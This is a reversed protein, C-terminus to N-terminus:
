DDFLYIGLGVKFGITSYDSKKLSLDYYIAPEITVSRNIFFAYGVEVNPMVDNYSKQAHVLKVGAGLYLGNQTIYYRAGAGVSIHDPVVDSGNHQYNVPGLVMIDDWLFNGAKGEVGLNLGNAGNYNLDIGTLSGGVYGKGEQFQARVGLALLVLMTLLAMRKKM